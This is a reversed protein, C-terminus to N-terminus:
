WNGDGIKRTTVNGKNNFIPSNDGKTKNTNRKSILVSRIAFGGTGGIIFTIIHTIISTWDITM